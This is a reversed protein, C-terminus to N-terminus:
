YARRRLENRFLDVSPHLYHRSLVSPRTTTPTPPVFRDGGLTQIEGEHGMAIRVYEYSYGRSILATAFSHRLDILAVRPIGLRDSAAAFARPVGWVRGCVVGGPRGVKRLELSFTRLEPEMPIWVPACRRNKHNARLWRGRAIETGDDDKWAYDPDLSSIPFSWLDLAHMGTWFGLTALTAYREALHGCFNVLGDPTLFNNRRRSDNPVDPLEPILDRDIVRRKAALKFAARLFILRKKLTVYQLGRGSPGYERVVQELRAYQCSDPPSNDGLVCLLWRARDQYDHATAEAIDASIAALYETLISRLSSREYFRLELQM